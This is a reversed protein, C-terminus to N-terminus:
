HDDYLVCLAPREGQKKTATDQASSIQAVFVQACTSHRLCLHSFNYAHWVDNCRMRKNRDFLRARGGMREDVDGACFM